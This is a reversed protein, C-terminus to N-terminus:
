YCNFVYGDEYDYDCMFLDRAFAKIDFYKVAIEPMDHEYCEEFLHWAFDEESDWQGVYKEDFGDMYDIGYLNIFADLAERNEHNAYAIIKDFTEEDMCSESYLARPFNEYDQFMLEPDDEDSHLETCYEIFEDYSNFDTLAIWKGFISGENYKGYTGCYVAPADNESIQNYSMIEKM